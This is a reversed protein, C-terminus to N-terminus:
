YQVIYHPYTPLTTAFNIEDHDIISNWENQALPESQM